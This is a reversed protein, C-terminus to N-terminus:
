SYRIQFLLRNERSPPLLKHFCSPDQVFGFGAPGEIIQENEPGYYDLVVHDPQRGSWPAFLSHLPKRSHSREIMVHAGSQDVVDTIYFYASMFNYGAVDYHYSLPLFRQKQESLPLESVFTWTLHRTVSTPWYGLYNRAIELLVPDHAVDEVASCQTPHKVLGRLVPRGNPLQGAKIDEVYFEEEFGPEYLLSQRAYNYINEVYFKPLCLGFSASNKRIEQACLEPSTIPFLSNQRPNLHEKYLTPNLSQRWKQLFSYTKRVTNFRGVTQFVDRKQFRASLRDWAVSFNM